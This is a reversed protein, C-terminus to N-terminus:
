KRLLSNRLLRKRKESIMLCKRLWSSLWRLFQNRDTESLIGSKRFASIICDQIRTRIMQAATVTVGPEGSEFNAAYITKLIESAEEANGVILYNYLKDDLEKPYYYVNEMQIM